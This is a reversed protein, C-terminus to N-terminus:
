KKTKEIYIERAKRLINEEYKRSTAESVPENYWEGKKMKREFVSVKLAEPTIVDDSISVQIKLSYNPEKETTYWDTIILGKKSDQTAIPMSKLIDLTADWLYANINAHKNSTTKTEENKTHFPRFTVGDSGVVSGVEERIKEERSIPYDSAIATASMGVIIMAIILKM